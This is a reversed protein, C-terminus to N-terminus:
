DTDRPDHSTLNQRFGEASREFGAAQYFAHAGTRENSSLLELRCCGHARATATIATILSSGVHRGRLTHDVVLTDLIGHPLAGDLLSTVVVLDAIGVVVVLM